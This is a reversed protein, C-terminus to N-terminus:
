KNESSKIHFPNIIQVNNNKNEMVSIQNAIQKRQEDFKKIFKNDLSEIHNKMEKDFKNLENFLGKLTDQLCKSMYDNYDKELKGKWLEDAEKKAKEIIKKDNESFKANSDDELSLGELKIILKDGLGNKTRYQDGIKFYKDQEQLLFTQQPGLISGPRCIRIYGIFARAPFRYHKMAYIAILTGTRGLGAKCHVAVGGKENEVLDLFHEVIDESPTTGDMFYLDRHSIGNKEFIKKDYAPKNLRVVLTIGMKKFIPCYDQPTFTRYGEEDYEKSSPSPFALFKGPIIWNMDGNDVKEYEEYEKVKFTKPNYWGLEIAYQLGRLCDLITCEYTCPGNIADRFPKFPPKVDKFFSWAEEATMKKCIVLYAGMLYAANARKDEELSTYHYIKHKQKQMIKNVEMVFKHTMALNLPGFDECFSEYTLVEDICFYLAKSTKSKPAKSDSVWYLRDKEIEIPYNKSGLEEM